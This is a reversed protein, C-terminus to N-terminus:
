SFAWIGYRVWYYLTAAWEYRVYSTDYPVTWWREPHLPPDPESVPAVGVEAVADGLVHQFTALARRTHYPSTVVLVARLPQARAYDRVALAEGRTGSAMLPLVRIREAAVGARVLRDARRGCDHCNFATVSEPLTLLVLARPYTAALRAAAPLREWEHSALEVIADPDTVAKSVILSAGADRGLWLALAGITALV